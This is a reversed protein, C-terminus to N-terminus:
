HSCIDEDRVWGIRLDDLRVKVWGNISSEKNLYSMEGLTEFVTGNSMPLLYISSDALVCVKKIGSELYYIYGLLLLAVFLYLYKKRFIAMLLILGVVAFLLYIKIKQHSQDIPTIDSQTVVRDDDVVIALNIDVFDKKISSFYSFNLTDISKDIVAYYTLRANSYSEYISEIGQKAVGGLYFSGIDCGKASAVLVIINSKNDFSTAKYEVLEFRSAVINAFNAKPKFDIVEVEGLSLRTPMFENGDIDQPYAVVVPLKADLDNVVFTFTDYFFKSDERRDPKPSVLRVGSEDEFEYRVDVVSRSYPLVRITLEFMGGRVVPAIEKSLSLHMVESDYDIVEESLDDAGLLSSLLLIAFLLQKLRFTMKTVLYAVLCRKM